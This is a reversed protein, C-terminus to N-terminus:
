LNWNWHFDGFKFLVTPTCGKERERERSEVGWKDQKNLM